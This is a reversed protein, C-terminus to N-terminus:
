FAEEVVVAPESTTLYLQPPSIGVKYMWAPGEYTYESDNWDRDTYRCSAEAGTTFFASVLFLTLLIILKNLNLTKM